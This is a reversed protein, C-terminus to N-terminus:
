MRLGRNEKSDMFASLVIASSSVPATSPALSRSKETVSFVHLKSEEVTTLVSLLAFTGRVHPLVTKDKTGEHIEM